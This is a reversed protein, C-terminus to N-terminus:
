TVERITSKLRVIRRLNRKGVKGRKQFKEKKGVLSNCNIPLFGEKTSRPRKLLLTL